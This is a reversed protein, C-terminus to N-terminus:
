NCIQPTILPFVPIYVDFSEKNIIRMMTYKGSMRGIESRMETWSVYQYRENPEIIPQKGIVGTGSIERKLGNGDEILWYRHLLQVSYPSLNEITLRYSYVYKNDLPRSYDNQYFTEVMVKINETVLIEM